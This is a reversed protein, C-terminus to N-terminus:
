RRPMSRSRHRGSRAVVHRAYGVAYEAFGGNLAYGTNMSSRASRRAAPTATGAIVAPTGWGRCPSATASPGPRAHEGSGLEEVIGVGEHGPIFPPSPKIPWEGRAAHIDTHCLGCAEIRVLVQDAGPRPGAPGRDRASPRLKPRSRGEHRREKKTQHSDTGDDRRRRAPSDAPVRISPEPEGCFPARAGLDVCRLEAGAELALEVAAALAADSGTSGDVAVVITKM